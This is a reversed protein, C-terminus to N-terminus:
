YRQWTPSLFISTAMTQLNKAREDFRVLAKEPWLSGPELILDRVEKRSALTEGGPMRISDYSLMNRIICAM